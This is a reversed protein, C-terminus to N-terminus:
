EEWASGFIERRLSLDEDPIVVAIWPTEKSTIKGKWELTAANGYELDLDQEPHDFTINDTRISFRHRGRGRVTLLVSVEGKESTTQSIEIDTTKGPRLDLQYNSAPLFIQRVEMEGSRVKYNGQPLMIKFRGNLPDPSVKIVQDASTEM